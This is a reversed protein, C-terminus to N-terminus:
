QQFLGISAFLRRPHRLSNLVEKLGGDKILVWTFCLWYFGTWYFMPSKLLALSRRVWRFPLSLLYLIVGLTRLGTFSRTDLRAWVLSLFNVQEQIQNVQLRLAELEQPLLGPQSQRQKQFKSKWRIVREHLVFVNKKRVRMM